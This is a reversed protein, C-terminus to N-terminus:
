FPTKMIDAFCYEPVVSLIVNNKHEAIQPRQQIGNLPISLWPICLEQDTTIKLAQGKSTNIGIVKIFLVCWFKLKKEVNKEASIIPNAKENQAFLRTSVETTLAVNNNQRVGIQDVIIPMMHNFSFNVLTLIVQIIM